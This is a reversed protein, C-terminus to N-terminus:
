KPAQGQSAAAGASKVSKGQTVQGFRNIIDDGFVAAAVVMILAFGVLLGGLIHLIPVSTFALLALGVAALIAAFILYRRAADLEDQYPTKNDSDGTMPSCVDGNVFYGQPCSLSKGSPAGMPQAMVGLGDQQVGAGAATPMGAKPAQGSFAAEAASYGSEVTPSRQAQGSLKNAFKLQSMAGRGRAPRTAPIKSSRM